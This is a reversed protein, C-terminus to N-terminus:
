QQANPCYVYGIVEEFSDRGYESWAVRTITRYLKEEGEVEELARSFTYGNEYRVGDVTNQEVTNTGRLPYEAEGRDMVARATEYNRSVRIVKFCRATTEALVIISLSLIAMALVAEVLTLGAQSFRRM